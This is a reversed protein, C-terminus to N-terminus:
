GRHCRSSWAPTVPKAGVRRRNTYGSPFNCSASRRQWSSLMVNPSRRSNCRVITALEDDTLIALLGESLTIRATRPLHGYAIAVPADTPLLRLQPLPWRQQRALKQLVKATEPHQSALRHLAYPTQGYRWRLWVDLLWPSGVLLIGLLLLIAHFPQTLSPYFWGPLQPGPLAVSTRYIAIASWELSVRVLWILAFTAIAQWLWLQRLKLPRLRRWSSAREANRWNRGPVFLAPTATASGQEYPAPM